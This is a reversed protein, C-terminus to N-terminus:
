DIQQLIRKVPPGGPEVPPGGRLAAPSIRGETMQTEGDSSSWTFPPFIAEAQGGAGQSGLDISTNCGHAPSMGLMMVAMMLALKQMPHEGPGMLQLPGPLRGPGPTDGAPAESDEVEESQGSGTGPDEDQCPRPVRLPDGERHCCWGLDRGRGERLRHARLELASRRHQHTAPGKALDERDAGERQGGEPPPREEAPLWGAPRPARGLADEERIPRARAALAGLTGHVRVGGETSLCSSRKLQTRRSLQAGRPVRRAARPTIQRFSTEGGDM